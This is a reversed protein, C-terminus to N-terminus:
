SGEETILYNQKQTEWLHEKYHQSLRVIQPTIIKRGNEKLPAIKEKNEDTLTELWDEFALQYVEDHLKKIREKEAKRQSLLQEQAIEQSSRYSDEVWAEGKRLVGMLVNLPKTKFEKKNYKLGYAFHNISEQVIEPTNVNKNALQKLHTVSLGIDQLPETNIARWNEDLNDVSFQRKKTTTNNYSSSNSGISVPDIFGIKFCQQYTNEDLQYQTWGFKGSQSNARTIFNNKSLFKIATKVSNISIDLLQSIKSTNIKTTIKPSKEKDALSALFLVVTRPNGRLDNFNLHPKYVRNISGIKVRNISGTEIPDISEISTETSKHEEELWVRRKKGSAKRFPAVNESGKISVNISKAIDELQAM